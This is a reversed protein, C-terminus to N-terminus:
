QKQMSALIQLQADYAEIVNDWAYIGMADSLLEVKERFQSYNAIASALKEVLDAQNEYFFDSQFAKPVIEPYVLRKPLLPLCGHRIAEVVSVGFNEQNSTSIVISAKSLWWLYTSKEKVYGYHVIRDGYRNRATIFEDPINRFDEGLLALRFDIGRKTVADIADFFAKPNKDFEWRHNWVILPPFSSSFAPGKKESPFRCGPYLVTSKNRIEQVVWTPRYEPMMGLFDPLTSFFSEFHYKSNFVVCQASLATTIDTFGYQLDMTEGPALPYTLQNEHFYALSPPCDPGTLAKFDALSMLDTVILGDYDKLPLNLGMFHLAAGRM